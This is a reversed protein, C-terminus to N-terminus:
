LMDLVVLLAMGVSDALLRRRKPISPTRACSSRTPSTRISRMRAVPRARAFSMWACVASWPRSCGDLNEVANTDSRSLRFWADQVVDDGESMSGLMRYAVARLRSRNAEFREALWDKEDM